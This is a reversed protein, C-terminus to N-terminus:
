LPTGPAALTPGGGSRLKMLRMSWLHVHCYSPNAPTSGVNIAGVKTDAVTSFIPCQKSDRERFWFPQCITLDVLADNKAIPRACNFLDNTMKM